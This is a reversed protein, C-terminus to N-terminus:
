GCGPEVTSFNPSWGKLCGRGGTMAIQEGLTDKKILRDLM